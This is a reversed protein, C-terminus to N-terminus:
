ISHRIKSRVFLDFAKVLDKVYLVDRVQKGNGYITISKEKLVTIGFHIM